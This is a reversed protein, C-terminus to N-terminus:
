KKEWRFGLLWRQMTRHFWCPVEEDTFDFSYSCSQFPRFKWFGSGRYVKM